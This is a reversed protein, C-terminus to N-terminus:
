TSQDVSANDNVDQLTQVALAIVEKSIQKLKGSNRVSEYVDVDRKITKIVSIQKMYQDSDSKQDKRAQVEEIKFVHAAPQSSKIDILRTEYINGDLDYEVFLVQPTREMNTKTMANRCVSGPNIFKVGDKRTAQMPDHIHGCTILKTKPHIPIDELLVYSGFYPALTISAHAAVIVWPKDKLFGEKLDEAVSARFHVCGIGYEPIEDQFKICGADILTGLASDPLNEPHHKCDHNGLVTYWPVTTKNLLRMFSNRCNGNPEMRHFIDGLHVVLDCKENEGIEVCEQMEALTATLYDDKRTDPTRDDGHTDGVILLRIRNKKAM